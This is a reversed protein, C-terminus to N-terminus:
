GRDSRSLRAFASDSFNSSAFSAILEKQSSYGTKDLIAMIQSRVTHVSAGRDLAITKAQHGKLLGVMVEQEARTLKSRTELRQLSETADAHQPTFLALILNERQAIAGRAQAPPLPKLTVSWPEVAAGLADLTCGVGTAEVTRLAEEWRSQWDAQRFRLRGMVLQFPLPQQLRRFCDNTELCRASADTVMCAIPVQQLADAGTRLSSTQQALRAAGIWARDLHVLLGSLLDEARQEFPASDPGRYLTLMLARQPGQLFAAGMTWRLHVLGHHFGGSLVLAREHRHVQRWPSERLLTVLPDSRASSQLYDRDFDAASSGDALTTTSECAAWHPMSRIQLQAADAGLWRAIAQLMAPVQGADLASEYALAVLDATALFASVDM